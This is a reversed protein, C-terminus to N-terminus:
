PKRRTYYPNLPPDNSIGSPWSPTWESGSVFGNEWIDGVDERVTRAVLWADPCCDNVTVWGFRHKRCYLEGDHVNEYPECGMSDMARKVAATM